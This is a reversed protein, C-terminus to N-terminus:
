SAPIAVPATRAATQHRVFRRHGLWFLAPCYGLLMVACLLYFLYRYEPRRFFEEFAAGRAIHGGRAAVSREMIRFLASAGCIWLTQFAGVSLAVGGVVARAPLSLTRRGGGHALPAAGRGGDRALLTFYPVSCFSIVLASDLLWIAPYNGVGRRELM